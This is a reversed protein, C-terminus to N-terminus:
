IPLRPSPGGLHDRVQESTRWEFRQKDGCSAWFSRWYIKLKCTPLEMAAHVRTKDSSLAGFACVRTLACARARVCVFAWSVVIVDCPCPVHVHCTPMAYPCPYTWSSPWQGPHSDRVKLAEFLDERLGYSTLRTRQGASATSHFEVFLYSIACLLRCSRSILPRRKAAHKSCVLNEQSAHACSTHARSAHPM